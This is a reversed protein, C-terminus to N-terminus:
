RGILRGYATGAGLRAFYQYALRSAEEIAAAGRDDDQLYSTMMSFIYPRNKAFVIGADVRVGELEGPKSAVEVEPPVGRTLPTVKAENPEKLMGIAGDRGPKSLGQGKYLIELLRALEAATSVNEQGQRAADLDLMLRRLATNALGLGRMRGNVADMGLTRILVNTATNDSLLVMLKAYDRLSLTVTGLNYLVGSGAVAVRRDLALMTDLSLRGEDAQRFLEYVLTLKITSATPLVLDPLRTFRDGSTLDVVAYSAIGNVHDAIGRLAQDFQTRLIGAPQAGPAPATQCAAPVAAALALTLAPLLRSYM